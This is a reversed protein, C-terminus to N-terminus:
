KECERKLNQLGKDFTKGLMKNVGMVMFMGRMMFPMNGKMNWTVKTGTGEDALKFESYGPTTNEAPFYLATKIYTYPTIEEIVQRGSGEKKSVWEVQHGKTYPTGTYKSNAPIAPDSESWPSWSDWQKFDGFKSFILSDKANIVISKEISMPPAIACLVLYVIVIVLLSIGTIRLFKKM